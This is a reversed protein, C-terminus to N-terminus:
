SPQAGNGGRVRRRLQEVEQRLRENEAEVREVRAIREQVTPLVKGTSPNFLRLEKGARELHLGLERSPLRGKLSRIPHYSGERFRFGCLPPDLYNNLPDFLFFEPVRLFQEYLMFKDKLDEDRTSSSTLEIVVDPGKGEEWTLFNLRHGKPVGKVVFVDPSVYRFREGPVYYVLLNGSVYVQEDHAYYHQLTEILDLLLDRHFDTEAVPRGDSTPYDRNSPSKGRLASSM